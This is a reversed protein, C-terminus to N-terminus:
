VAGVVAVPPDDEIGSGQRVGGEYIMLSGDYIMGGAYPSISVQSEAPQVLALILLLASGGILKRNM